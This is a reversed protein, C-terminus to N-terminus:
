LWEFELTLDFISFALGEGLSFRVPIYLIINLVHFVIKAHSINSVM